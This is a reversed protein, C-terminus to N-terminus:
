NLFVAYLSLFLRTQAAVLFISAISAAVFCCVGLLMEDRPIDCKAFAGFSSSFEESPPVNNCKQANSNAVVGM